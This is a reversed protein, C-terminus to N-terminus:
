KRRDQLKKKTHVVAECFPLVEPIKVGARLLLESATGQPRPIRNLRTDGITIIISTISELLDIGEKVTLNMDTWVTRLYKEIKYALMVIFVHAITREKKRVYVPRIGLVSKETRFAWEVEALSKYRSHIFEKDGLEKPLDTKMVYCGDLKATEELSHQDLEIELKRNENDLLLKIYSSAKFQIIMQQIKKEQTKMKGKPHAALYENSQLVKEKLKEIKENRNRRIKEARYPNRRFVYRIHKKKDEVEGLEEDFLTMQLTGSKLLTQIQDKTITTIYHFNEDSLEEIQPIKLMGKDGVFTIHRCHFKNRLKNIQEKVTKNDKTNGQFVEVGLPEGKEDTLLGYVIQKKGKKKDRNYGWAALENQEGELYSSSVDYLFIQNAQHHIHSKQWNKFLKKEIEEQHSYLWDMAQYFDEEQFSDLGLIECVVRSEAMRVASLRSGKDILRALTLWLILLGERSNGLAKTIGLRSAIQYLLTVAGVKKGNEFKGEALQKLYAINDKNKLAIDIAEIEEETRKSLNAITTMVIKGNKRKGERILVRKYTKGNRSTICKDIFM